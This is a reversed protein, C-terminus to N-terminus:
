VDYFGHPDDAFQHGRPCYYRNKTGRMPAAPLGDYKCYVTLRGRLRRQKWFWFLNLALLLCFFLGGLGIVPNKISVWWDLVEGAFTLADKMFWYFQYRLVHAVWEWFATNATPPTRSYASISEMFGLIIGLLVTVGRKMAQQTDVSINADLRNGPCFCLCVVM